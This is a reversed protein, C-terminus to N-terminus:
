KENLAEDIIRKVEDSPDISEPEQQVGAEDAQSKAESLAARLDDDSVNSRLDWGGGEKRDAVHAIVADFGDDDIKDDLVGRAFRELTQRGEVKEEDSLTSHDFYSREVTMVVLSPMLPSELVRDVIASAQENSIKGDRFAKAVREVQENVEAKEQPPLESADIGQKIAQAGVGAFVGRWNRSVWIGFFVALVVMVASVGLCGILCSRWVSRKREPEEIQFRPADNTPPYAGFQPDSAM